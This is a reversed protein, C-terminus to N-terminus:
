GDGRQYLATMSGEALIHGRAAAALQRKTQGAPLNLNTDLAYLRFVYHHPNPPPPCPGFYGTNRLSNEGEASGVPLAARPTAGEPLDRTTPPINYVLWHVFGGADPDDLVLLFSQTGAPPQPLQIDPSLGAGDCTFKQPIRDGNQFSSSGLALSAPTEGEALDGSSSRRCGCIATLSLLALTAVGRIVRKRKLVM